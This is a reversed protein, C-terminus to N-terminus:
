QKGYAENIKFELYSRLQNHPMKKVAYSVENLEANDLTLNIKNKQYGSALKRIVTKQENTKTKM